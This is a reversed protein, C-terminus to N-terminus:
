VGSAKKGWREESKAKAYRRLKTYERLRTSEGPRGRRKKAAPITAISVSVGDTANSVAACGPLGPSDLTHPHSDTASSASGDSPPSSSIIAPPTSMNENVPFVLPASTFSAIGENAFGSTTAPAHPLNVTSVSDTRSGLLDSVDPARSIGCLYFLRIDRKLCRTTKQRAIVITHPPNEKQTPM